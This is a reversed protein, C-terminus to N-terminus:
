TLPDFTVPNYSCEIYFLFREAIQTATLDEMEEDSVEATFRYKDGAIRFTAELIRFDGRLSLDSPVSWASAVNRDRLMKSVLQEKLTLRETM